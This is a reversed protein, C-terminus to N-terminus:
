RLWKRQIMFSLSRSLSTNSPQGVLTQDAYTLTSAWQDSALYSAALSLSAFSQRSGSSNVTGVISVPDEHSWTISSGLRLRSWNYGAGLGLNGGWGPNLTGSTSGQNISKSFARHAEFNLFADYKGLIKTLLTGAGIAGFGRGRSDLGYISEAEYVSKGTPLVIQLFGIGKPRYPNYNWDPLYEYGLLVSADGLGSSNEYGKSRKIVPVSMGFQWRDDFVHAADLRLTESTEAQQRKKWLGNANVDSKIEGISLSSSFIARDDGAIIGPTAFGGGCCAAGLATSGFFSFLLAFLLKM